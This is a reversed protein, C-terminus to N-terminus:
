AREFTLVAVLRTSITRTQAPLPVIGFLRYQVSQKGERIGLDLYVPAGGAATGHLDAINMTTQVSQDKLERLKFNVSYDFRKASMTPCISLFTGFRCAGKGAIEVERTRSVNTWQGSVVRREPLTIIGTEPTKGADAIGKCYNEGTALECLQTRVIIKNEAARASIFSFLTISLLFTFKM